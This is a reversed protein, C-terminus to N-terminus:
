KGLGCLKVDQSFPCWKCNWENPKPPYNKDKYGKSDFAEEIFENLANTAKNLKIKGSPPKFTQFRPIYYDESEYLKRKLILFEINIKELPIQFQDSFFKKYLILQFQKDEDKKTYSSWGKTSTKLDIIYFEDSPEHYLVVDLYGQYITNPFKPNPAISIPLECGVLFWGRKSFYQKKKKKLYNLIEVGDEYFENLQDPHSFHNNKNKKYEAKYQNKLEQEFNKILDIEDAKTISKNYFSDLYDQIVIHLANGFLTHITSTFVKIGDKYQLGWRHPCKRFMSLQSYSINKQYSYDIKEPQYKQIKKVISPIKKAM